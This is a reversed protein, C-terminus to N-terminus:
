WVLEGAEGLPVARGRVGKGGEILSDYAEVRLGLSRCQCGGSYVPELPNESAFCGAIDTGGSINALQVHAPFGKDYFWEFLADSLVMGTSTVVRLNSLDTEDRPLVPPQASALTQFFRPSM